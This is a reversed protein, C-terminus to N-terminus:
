KKKKEGADEGHKEKYERIIRRYQATVELSVDEWTRYVSRHAEEGVRALLGPEAAIREIKDAFADPTEEALFGNVGDEINEATCCGRVLLTPVKHAAAEIPVLSSTDFTSPFVFLDSRLYYGAIEERDMVRGTFIFRDCLGSKEILSRFEAEDFGGGVILMKYDMGRDKLIRMAEAMLALNKYMAIRGVFIFVNKQGALGHKENVRAILEDANEPYKLDTGNRVVVVDGTYGYDRLIQRSAENVTWVSDAGNLVKLMYKMLFRVGPRFGHLSREFDERFKTHLTVVSPIGRRKAERVAYSGMKMPSHAHMIDLERGAMEKKFKRDIEPLGMRYGSRTVGVSKCRVVDFPQCDVYRLSPKASPVVAICSGDEAADINKAYYTMVNTPGDVNPYYSDMVQAVKLKESM